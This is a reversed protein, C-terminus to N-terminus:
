FKGNHLTLIRDMRQALELNHTAVVASLGRLRALEIFMQFVSESTKQDLNGTPEDALILTPGASIARAIAVRQQEGGSLEAPRHAARAALGLAALLERARAVAKPYATGGIMQPIAINEVASFEPLLHHFQYVFGLYKRRMATRERDSAKSVKIGEILVEGGSPTDLLGSIQLLTSKGSGSAGVLAVIEGRKVSLDIGRLVELIEGGQRFARTVSKLELVMDSM